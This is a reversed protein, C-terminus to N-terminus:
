KRLLRHFLSSVTTATFELTICTHVTTKMYFVNLLLRALQLPLLSNGVWFPISICWFCAHSSMHTRVCGDGKGKQSPLFFLLFDYLREMKHVTLCCPCICTVNITIPRACLWKTMALPVWWWLMCWLIFRLRDRCIVANWYAGLECTNTPKMLNALWLAIM